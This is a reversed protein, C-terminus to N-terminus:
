PTKKILAARALKIGHQKEPDGLHNRITYDCYESVMFELAERLKANKAMLDDCKLLEKVFAPKVVALEDQAPADTATVERVHVIEGGHNVFNIAQEKDPYTGVSRGEGYYTIWWERPKEPKLKLKALAANLAAFVDQGHDVFSAAYNVTRKVEVLLAEVDKPDHQTM